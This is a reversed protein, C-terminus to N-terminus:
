KFSEKMRGESQIDEPEIMASFSGTQYFSVQTGNPNYTGNKNLRRAFVEFGDPYVDHPGMGTGGGGFSTKVVVYKGCLSSTDYTAKPDLKPVYRNVFAMVDSVEIKKGSLRQIKEKIEKVTDKVESVIREQDVERVEGLKIDTQSKNTRYPANSYIFREEISAYVKMGEKLTVIDGKKLLKTAM